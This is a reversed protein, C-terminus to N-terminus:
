KKLLQYERFIKEVVQYNIRRGKRRHALLAGSFNKPIHLLEHILVKKKEDKPLKDFRESIVEIVYAAPIKLALQWVRPFSWIRAQARSTSGYSRFCIIRGLNLHSFSLTHAIEQIDKKIDEAEQWEM